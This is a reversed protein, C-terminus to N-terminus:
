RVMGSEHTTSTRLLPGLVTSQPKQFFAPPAAYAAAPCDSLTRNILGIIGMRVSTLYSGGYKTQLKIVPRDPAPRTNGPEDVNRRAGSEQHKPSEPEQLM